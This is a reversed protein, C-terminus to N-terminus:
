HQAWGWGTIRWGSALKQLALTWVGHETISKGKEKFTILSPEVVYARDATVSVHWPKDLAVNLDTDGAKKNAADLANWWDGCATAGQWVHPAFDDIIITQGTCLASWAKIDNKNFAADYQEVTTMVDAKDSALASTVALPALLLAGALFPISSRM